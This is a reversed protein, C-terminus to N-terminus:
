LMSRKCLERVGCLPPTNFGQYSYIYNVSGSRIADRSYSFGDFRNNIALNSEKYGLKRLSLITQYRVGSLRAYGPLEKFIKEEKEIEQNIKQAKNWGRLFTAKIRKDLRKAFSHDDVSAWAIINKM